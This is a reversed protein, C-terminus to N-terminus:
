ALMRYVSWLVFPLCYGAFIAAISPAARDSM